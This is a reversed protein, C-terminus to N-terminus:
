IIKDMFIEIYWFMQNLAIINLLQISKYSDIAKHIIWTYDRSKYPSLSNEPLYLYRDYLLYKLRRPSVSFDCTGTQRSQDFRLGHPGCIQVLNTRAEYLMKCESLSVGSSVDVPEGIVGFFTLTKLWERYM